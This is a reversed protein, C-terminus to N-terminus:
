LAVGEDDTSDLMDAAWRVYTGPVGAAYRDADRRLYNSVTRRRVGDVLATTRAAGLLRRETALEAALADRADRLMTCDRVAEDRERNSGTLAVRLEVVEPALEDLRSRLAHLIARADATAAGLALTRQVNGSGDYSAPDHAGASGITLFRAVLEEVLPALAEPLEVEAPPAFPLPAFTDPM